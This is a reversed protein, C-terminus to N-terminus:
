LAGHVLCAGMQAREGGVGPGTGVERFFPELQQMRAGM